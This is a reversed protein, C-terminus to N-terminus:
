IQSARVVLEEEPTVRTLSKYSISICEWPNSESDVFADHPEALRIIYLTNGGKGVVFGYFPPIQPSIEVRVVENLKFNPIKRPTPPRAFGMCKAM